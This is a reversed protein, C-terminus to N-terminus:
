GELKATRRLPKAKPRAAPDDPLVWNGKLLNLMKKVVNVLDFAPYSNAFTNGTIHNRLDRMRQVFNWAHKHKSFKHTELTEWNLKHTRAGVIFYECARTFFRISEINSSICKKLAEQLAEEANNVKIRFPGNSFFVCVHELSTINAIDFAGTGNEVNAKKSRQIAGATYTTAENM